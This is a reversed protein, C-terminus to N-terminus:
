AGPMSQEVQHWGPRQLPGLRFAMQDLGVRIHRRFVAGTPVAVIAIKLDHDHHLSPRPEHILVLRRQHLGAVDDVLPRPDHVVMEVVRRVHLIEFDYLGASKFVTSMGGAVSLTGGTVGQFYRKAGLHSNVNRRRDSTDGWAPPLQIKHAPRSGSRYGATFMPTSPAKVSEPATREARTRFRLAFAPRRQM